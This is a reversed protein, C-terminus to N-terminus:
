FFFFIHHRMLFSYCLKSSQRLTGLTQSCKPRTLRSLATCASPRGHPSHGLRMKRSM